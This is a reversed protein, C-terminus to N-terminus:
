GKPGSWRRLKGGDIGLQDIARAAIQEVLDDMSTPRAYFAPVPPLITAGLEAAELLRRLHGVHLPAERAMLVLPRREKLTVDAARELLNSSRSSAVASVSSMSCPAVIMGATRFTGSAIPAALEDNPWRRTARADLDAVALNLELGLVREGARTVVLHTEVGAEQLLDLVALGLAAGSAGSIGVVVPLHM